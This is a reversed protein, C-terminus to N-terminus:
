TQISSVRISNTKLFHRSGEQSLVNELDQQNQFVLDTMDKWKASSHSQWEIYNEPLYFSKEQGHVARSLVGWTESEMKHFIPYLNEFVALNNISAKFDFSDGGTLTMYKRSQEPLYFAAAGYSAAGGAIMFNDSLELAGYIPRVKGNFKPHEISGYERIVKSPSHTYDFMNMEFGDRFDMGYNPASEQEWVNRLGDGKLEHIQDPSINVTLRANSVIVIAAELLEEAAGADQVRALKKIQTIAFDKDASKGALIKPLLHQKFHNKRAAEADSDNVTRPSGGLLRGLGGFMGSEDTLKIPNNGVMCYINLGDINGAPDASIWRQLWPAYYRYGYYYLGTADREKGSYRITKYKAVLASKGAWCATGGFPYYHELTLVGAQDDLEMSSSGLHDSLSYRLQNNDVGDPASKPWHLVRMSSRGAEVSIVHHEEGDADRHIELGPLYRVEARLTRTGTHTLRVKRLRHGPRDYVYREDDDPGDDRKVLTVRSLQNRTDWSMAQGRQLECQNGNADFGEAIEDEGPLGGDDRQGLSRNSSSSTFMSFSPAGSHHRTILNGARDYDFTQTYSRRQNPDLPTPLWGPLAPGHSPSSVEWGKAEVLQYLSNYRYHSIPEIRQNNFHSVTQSQDELEVINGVPDYAYNLDQLTKQQALGAVLRILRGDDAAYEANTVVGNGATESDIQGLANYRIHSVLLQPENAAAQKLWVAKLEGAVTHSFIRVNRKADTQTQLEGLPNCTQTSVFTQEELLANRADIALPWDPTELDALVRRSESLASGNLAYDTFLQTGAPDDHRILQGCQNHEATGAESGGYGLREVIRPAGDSAWETIAVPRRLEDYQTHRQSGRSDWSSLSQGTEDLLSLQWGGDVSDTLLSQGTLGYVTALNPKPATGWLRPDWSEILRGAADFGQRTVRTDMAQGASQRCYGVSCIALGRQDMVSLTPTATDHTAQVTM